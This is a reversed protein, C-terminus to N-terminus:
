SDGRNSQCRDQRGVANRVGPHLPDALSESLNTHRSKSEGDWAEPEPANKLDDISFRIDKGKEIRSEPEAKMLWYSPGAPDDDEPDEKRAVPENETRVPISVASLSSSSYRRAGKSAPKTPPRTTPKAKTSPKSGNKTVQSTARKKPTVVKQAIGKKVVKKRPTSAAETSEKDKTSKEDSPTGYGNGKFISNSFSGSQDSSRTARKNDTVTETADSSVKSRTRRTNEEPEISTQPAQRKQGANKAM